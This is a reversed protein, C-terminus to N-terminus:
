AVQEEKPASSAQPLWRKLIGRLQEITFPKTVYDDMGAEICRDRDEKMAHGTLAIIPVRAIRDGSQVERERIMRTAGYGDMIPMQCDMLIFDYANRASAEVAEMGHTVVEVRCGLSELMASAVERNVANDEVLLIRGRLAEGGTELVPRGNSEANRCAFTEAELKVITDYLQPFGLPKHLAAALGGTRLDELDLGQGPPLLGVLPVRCTGSDVNLRRV